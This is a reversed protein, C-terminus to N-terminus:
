RALVVPAGSDDYFYLSTSATGRPSLVIVQTAYGAGDVVQPLIVPSAADRNADAIPFTTLLFDGRANVLSRLTLAAFQTAASIDLVGTFGPPLGPVFQEIFAARHGNAALTVPAPSNGAPTSGNRQFAKLTLTAGSTATAALAIGTNHGASTDIYILAHNTLTAAPIGSETILNGGQSYSLVGAGIPSFMNSDPVVQVSGVVAAAPAGNSQFVFVGGPAISYALSSDQTGEDKFVKITGTEVSSSTNLLTVTTTYGGGNVFQPFYRTAQDLSRTLDAKPTTTLLSDGRQNLTLRLAEVSLAPNATIDLSGYKSVTQFDPPVVFDPAVDRLQDIFKAFHAGAAVSGHGTAIVSGAASRLTYTISATTKGPNVVAIGTNTNVAGSRYDVYIRASTTPPSAPVAAESVVINDSSASSFVATAYPTSGTTVSLTAYGSRLVGPNGLTSTVGAGNAPLPINTWSRAPLQFNEQDDIFLTGRLVAGTDTIQIAAGGLAIGGPLQVTLANMTRAVVNIPYTNGDADTLVLVASGPRDIGAANLLINSGPSYASLRRGSTDTVAIRAVDNEVANNTNTVAQSTKLIMPQRFEAKYPEFTDQFYGDIYPNINANIILNNSVIAETVNEIRIGSRASEGIFNGVVQINRHPSVLMPQSDGQQALLQIGAMKGIPGQGLNTVAGDITNNSIAQNELPPSMWDGAILRHIGWIAAMHSGAVYNGRVTSNMLGWLSISRAFVSDQVANRELVTNNGRQSPDTSYLVSGVVLDSLDRDFEVQVTQGSTPAQTPPPTQSVIVASDLIQGNTRSQFVMAAGNAMRISHQRQVSLKRASIKQTVTGNVLSHPSFGDDLTRISRCLRVTNGEGPQSLTIGDANSSILRDTGPRPMVYVREILSRSSENVQLGNIGSSFIKINQLTIGDGRDVRVPEGGGRETVVVTDGARIRTLVNETEWPSGSDAFTFRDAAIPRQLKFRSLGSAPQGNRFMFAYVSDEIGAVAQSESFAAPPQWGSPVVFQVQRRLIDVSTVSVQTFPLRLFDITFNKLTTNVSDVLSIGIRQSRDLYLDSGRFDIVLNNLSSLLVHRDPFQLSLFYYSGPDVTILTTGHGKAYNVGAVLLPGADLTPENPVLNVSSIGLEVLDRSLNLTPTQGLSLSPALLLLLVASWGQRM